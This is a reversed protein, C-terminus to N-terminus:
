EGSFLNENESCRPVFPVKSPLCNSCTAKAREYKRQSVRLNYFFNLCRIGPNHSRSIWLSPSHPLSWNSEVKCEWPRAVSLQGLSAGQSAGLCNWTGGAGCAGVAMGQLSPHPQRAGFVTSQGQYLRLDVYLTWLNGDHFSDFLERLSCSFFYFKWINEIFM